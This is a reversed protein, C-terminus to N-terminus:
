SGDTDDEEQVSSGSRTLPIEATVLTGSKPRTSLEFSGGLLNVREQMSSLGLREGPGSGAPAADPDFGRGWDRVRLRVGRRTRDLVVSVRRAHAHKRVNRLAEQAVRFLATEVAVPLREGDQLTGGYEVSWGDARMSEVELRVATKLGLDDLATPILNSIVRRAEGATDQVLELSRELLERGEASDPPHFRAFAQLHQHAAAAMQALGDHIEFAVRRREEEQAVFLKRVLNELRKEREALEGYLRANELASAAQNALSALIEPMEDVTLDQPGYVELVGIVQDRIRLPLCLGMLSEAPNAPRRLRFLRHKGTSMVEERSETAEPMFRARPWLADLGSARWIRLQGDRDEVDIIATTLGFVERMIKLLRMSIEGADLTSGLIQGAERLALLTGLSRKLREETQKRETIDRCTGEYYAVKGDAGRVARASLSSWMLAGDRRRTRVEFESVSGREQLRRIFEGRDQPDAYLHDVGPIEEPSTYGFMRVFAPNATLLTGDPASQYIGEVANEFVSRYREEARRRETIDLTLGGLRRVRGRRSRVASLVSRVWREGGDAALVRYELSRSEGTDAVSRCIRLVRERDEPHVTGTLAGSDPFLAPQGITSTLQLTDAEAEWAAANAREFIEQRFTERRQKRRHASRLQAGAGSLLLGAGALVALPVMHGPGPQSVSHLLLYGNAALALALAALGPGLGGFLTSALVAALFLLTASFRERLMSDPVIWLASAAAVALAPILYRAPVPLDEGGASGGGPHAASGTVHKLRM